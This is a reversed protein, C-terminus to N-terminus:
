SRVHVPEAAAGLAEAEGAAARNVKTRHSFYIPLATFLVAGLLNGFLVPGQNWLWWEGFNINAGLMMGAPIVFMNVIAHELGLSFFTTVPLWMALIKGGTSKSTYFMITGIAVMWNCLMAKIIAVLIGGAGVAEYPLVKHEAMHIIAQIMPDTTDTGLYTIAATYLVAYLGAGFIHALIVVAFNTLGKRLTTRGEMIALPILAFSGTVLELGLLLIMAFGVPFLV